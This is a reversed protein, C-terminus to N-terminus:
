IMESNETRKITALRVVWGLLFLGIGTLLVGTEGSDLRFQIPLTEEANFRTLLWGEFSAAILNCAAGIAAAIGAVQLATVTGMEFYAHRLVRWILYLAAVLSVQTAIASPLWMLFHFLRPAFPVEADDDVIYLFQWSTPGSFDFKWMWTLFMYPYYLAFILVGIFALPGITKLIATRMIWVGFNMNFM